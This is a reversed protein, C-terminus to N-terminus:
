LQYKAKIITEQFLKLPLHPSVGFRDSNVVTLLLEKYRDMEVEALMVNGLLIIELVAKFSQLVTTEFLKWPLWACAKACVHKKNSDIKFVQKDSSGFYKGM